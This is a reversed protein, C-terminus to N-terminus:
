AQVSGRGQAEPLMCPDNLRLPQGGQGSLQSALKAWAHPLCVVIPTLNKEKVMRAVVYSVHLSLYSSSM